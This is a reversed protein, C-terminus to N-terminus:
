TEREPLYDAAGLGFTWAVAEHAKSMNPPVRLFYDKYSGDPEPTSNTVKVMVLDEGHSFRQRYLTGFDDQHINAANSDILFKSMGYLDIAIRRIEANPEQLIDAATVDSFREILAPPVRAGNFFHIKFGDGYEVAAGTSSHLRHQDNLMLKHPRDSVFCVDELPLCYGANSALNWLPSLFGLEPLDAACAAFDYLALWPANFQGAFTLSVTWRVCNRLRAAQPDELGRKLGDKLRLAQFERSPDASRMKLSEMASDFVSDAILANDNAEFNEALLPSRLSAPPAGPPRGKELPFAAGAWNDSWAAARLAGEIPHGHGWDGMERAVPAVIMGTAMNSFSLAGCGWRLIFRQASIRLNDLREYLLMRKRSPELIKTLGFAVLLALPSECWIVNPQPLHFTRYLDSVAQNAADRDAPETSVGRKAWKAVYCPALERLEQPSRSM